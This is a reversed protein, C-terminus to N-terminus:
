AKQLVSVGIQLLLKKQLMLMLCSFLSAISGFLFYELHFIYTSLDTTQREKLVFYFLEEM